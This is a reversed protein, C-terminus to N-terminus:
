AIGLRNMVCIWNSHACDPTGVLCYSGGHNLCRFTWRSDAHTRQRTRQPGLHVSDVQGPREALFEELHEGPHIAEAM